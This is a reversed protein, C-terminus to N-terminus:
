SKIFMVFKVGSMMNPDCEEIVYCDLIKDLICHWYVQSSYKQPIYGIHCRKAYVRVATQDYQNDSEPKLSIKDGIKLTYYVEKAAKSRYTMGVLYMIAGSCDDYISNFNKVADRLVGRQKKSIAPLAVPTFDGRLVDDYYSNDDSSGSTTNLNSDNSSKYSSNSSKYSSNSSKYSSNSSYNSSKNFDFTQINENKQTSSNVMCVIFVVFVVFCIILIFIDM